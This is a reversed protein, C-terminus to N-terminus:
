RVQIPHFHETIDYIFGACLLHYKQCLQWLLFLPSITRWRSVQWSDGDIANRSLKPRQNRRIPVFDQKILTFRHNRLSLNQCMHPQMVLTHKMSEGIRGRIPEGPDNTKLRIQHFYGQLIRSGGESQNIDGVLHNTGIPRGGKQCAVLVLHWNASPLVTTVTTDFAKVIQFSWVKVSKWLDIHSKGIVIYWWTVM